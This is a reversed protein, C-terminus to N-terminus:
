KGHKNQEERCKLQQKLQEIEKNRQQLQMTLNVITQRLERTMKM